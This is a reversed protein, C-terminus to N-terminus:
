GDASLTDAKFGVRVAGWHRREVIIPMSYDNMIEGTDRLYTQFLNPETNKALKIGVPDNFIRKDRSLRNDHDFNGTHQESFKKNHTPAYGNSDVALAYIFSKHAVLFEDYTRQLEAELQGDYGTRYRKPNTGAIEVYHQSSISLIM